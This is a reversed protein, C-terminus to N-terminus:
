LKFQIPFRVIKEWPTEKLEDLQPTNPYIAKIAAWNITYPEKVNKYNNNLKELSISLNPEIISCPIHINENRPMDLLHPGFLAYKNKTYESNFSIIPIYRKKGFSAFRQSIEECPVSCTQRETHMSIVPFPSICNKPMNPMLQLKNHVWWFLLPESHFFDIKKILYKKLAEEEKIFSVPDLKKEFLNGYENISSGLSSSFKNKSNNLEKKIDEKLTKIDKYSKYTKLSNPLIESLYVSPTIDKKDQFATVILNAQEELFKITYAEHRKTYPWSLIQYEDNINNDYWQDTTTNSFILKKGNTSVLPKFETIYYKDDKKYVWEVGAACLNIGKKLDFGGSEEWKKGPYFYKKLDKEIKNYCDGVVFKLSEHNKLISGGTIEVFEEHQISAKLNGNLFLLSLIIGKAFSNDLSLFLLKKVNFFSRMKKKETKTISMIM